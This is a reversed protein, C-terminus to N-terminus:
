APPALSRWGVLDGNDTEAIGMAGVDIDKWLQASPVSFETGEYEASRLTVTHRDVLKATVVGEVWRRTPAADDNEIPSMAVGGGLTGRVRTHTSAVDTWRLPRGSQFM